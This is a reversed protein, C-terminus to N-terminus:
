NQHHYRSILTSMTSHNIRDSGNLIFGIMVGMLFLGVMGFIGYVRYKTYNTNSAKM